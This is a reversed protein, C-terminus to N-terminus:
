LAPAFTWHFRRVVGDVRVGWFRREKTAIGKATPKPARERRGYTESVSSDLDLIVKDLPVCDQGLDIRTGFRDMLAALNERSSLMEKGAKVPTSGQQPPVPRIIRPDQHTFSLLERKPDGM